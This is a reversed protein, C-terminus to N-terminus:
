RERKRERFGPEGGGSPGGRGRDGGERGRGGRDGGRGGRDGGRGGRDGGRGGRDGGERRRPPRDDGEGEPPGGEILVRRSLRVRGNDDIEIVKVQIEDGIDCIDRVENVRGHDMESIHLLGDKNPLLQIFAGFDMIRVVKGTYVKDLEVDAVMEEIERQAAAAAEGDTSGIYVTGDDEVDIKTGTKATLDRITRGGPGIILGIKSPPIQIITLRPATPALDPRPEALSEAMKALIHIRTEKAQVLAKELVEFTVSEMKIDMQLATIGDKTGAVKFDMDGLHDEVGQIDTLIANDGEYEV